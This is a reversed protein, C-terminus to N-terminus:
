LPLHETGRLKNAIMGLARLVIPSNYDDFKMLGYLVLFQAALYGSFDMNRGYAKGAYTRVVGVMAAMRNFAVEALGRAGVVRPIEDPGQHELLLDDVQGHLQEDCYRPFCRFRIIVGQQGFYHPSFIGRCDSFWTKVQEIAEAERKIERKKHVKAVYPVGGERFMLLFVKAGSKGVRRLPALYAASEQPFRQELCNFLLKKESPTLGVHLAPM